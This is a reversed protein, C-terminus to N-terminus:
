GDRINKNYDFAQLYFMNLGIGAMGCIMCFSNYTSDMENEGVQYPWYSFLECVKLSNITHPTAMARRYNGIHDEMSM